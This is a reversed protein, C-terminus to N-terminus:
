GKGARTSSWAIAYTYGPLPGQVTLGISKAGSTLSWERCTRADILNREVSTIPISDWWAWAEAAIGADTGFDISLSLQRALGRPCYGFSGPGPATSYAGTIKTVLEFSLPDKRQWRGPFAFRVMRAGGSVAVELRYDAPAEIVRPTARHAASASMVASADRFSVGHLEAGPFPRCGLVTRTLTADGSPAVRCSYEVRDCAYGHHREAIRLAAAYDGVDHGPLMARVAEPAM